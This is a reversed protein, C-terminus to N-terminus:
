TQTAVSLGNALYARGGENGFHTDAEVVVPEPTALLWRGNTSVAVNRFAVEDFRTGHLRVIVDVVSGNLRPTTVVTVDDVVFGADMAVLRERVDRWRRLLQALRESGPQYDELVETPFYQCLDVFHAVFEHFVVFAGTYYYRCAELISSAPKADHRDLWGSWLTRTASVACYGMVLGTIIVYGCEHPSWGKLGALFGCLLVVAASLLMLVSVGIAKVLRKNKLGKVISEHKELTPDESLGALITALRRKEIVEGPPAQLLPPCGSALVYRSGDMFPTPSLEPAAPSLGDASNPTSSMVPQRATLGYPVELEVRVPETFIQGLPGVEVSSISGVQTGDRFRVMQGRGHPYDVDAGIQYTITQCQLETPIPWLVSEQGSGAGECQLRLRLRKVMEKASDYEPKLLLEASCPTDYRNQYLVTLQCQGGEVVPGLAFCLGERELYDLGAQSLLDAAKDPHFWMGVMGALCLTACLLWFVMWGSKASSELYCTWAALLCFM